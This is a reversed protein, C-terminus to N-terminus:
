CLLFDTSFKVCIAHSRLGTFRLVIWTMGVATRTARM